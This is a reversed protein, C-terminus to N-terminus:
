RIDYYSFDKGRRSNTLAIYPETTTHIDFYYSRLNSKSDKNKQKKKTKIWKHFENGFFNWIVLTDRYQMALKTHDPSWVINLMRHESQIPVADVIHDLGALIAIKSRLRDNELYYWHVLLEGSLKNFMMSDVSGVFKVKRYGLQRQSNVNWLSVSADGPGGGICLIGSSWPHWAFAKICAYFVIEFLQVLSPYDFLKVLKDTGSVVLYQDNPSVSISFIERHFHKSTILSGNSSSLISLCGDDCANIIHEDMKAWITCSVKCKKPHIDYCPCKRTWIVKNSHTDYTSTSGDVGSMAIQNGENNWKLCCLYSTHDIRYVKSLHKFDVNCICMTDALGAALINKSSWDILNKFRIAMAFRFIQAGHDRYSKLNEGKMNMLPQKRPRCDWQCDDNFERLKLKKLDISSSEGINLVRKNHLGNLINLIQFANDMYKRRWRDTANKVEEFVDLYVGDKESVANRTHHYHSVDVNVGRRRPIFRDDASALRLPLLVHRTREPQNNGWSAPQITTSARLGPSVKSIGSKTLM